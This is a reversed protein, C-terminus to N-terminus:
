VGSGRGRAVCRSDDTRERFPPMRGSAEAVLQAEDITSTAAAMEGALLQSRALFSLAFRLHVLAGADRALQVRRCALLHFAEM